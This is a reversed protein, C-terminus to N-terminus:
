NFALDSPVIQSGFIGSEIEGEITVPCGSLDCETMLRRRTERPLGDIEVSVGNTDAFESPRTLTAFDGLLSIEGSVRVLEGGMDDIDLQLDTLEIPQYAPRSEASATANLTQTSATSTTASTEAEGMAAGVIVLGLIVGGTILLFKKM